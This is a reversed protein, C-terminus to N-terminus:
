KPFASLIDPRSHQARVFDSLFFSYSTSFPLSCQTFYIPNRSFLNYDLGTVRQEALSAGLKTLPVRPPSAAGMSRLISFPSYIIRSAPDRFPFIFHLSYFSLTSTSISAKWSSELKKDEVSRGLDYLDYKIKRSSRSRSTRIGGSFKKLPM